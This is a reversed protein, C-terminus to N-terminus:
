FLTFWTPCSYTLFVSKIAKFFVCLTTIRELLNFYICRTAFRPL